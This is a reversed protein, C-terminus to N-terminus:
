HLNNTVTRDKLKLTMQQLKQRKIESFWKNYFNRDKSTMEDLVFYFGETVLILRSRFKENVLLQMSSAIGRDFIVIHM